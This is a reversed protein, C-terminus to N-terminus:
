KAELEKRLRDVEAELRAVSAHAMELSSPNKWVEKGEADEVIWPEFDGEDRSWAQRYGSCQFCLSGPLEEEAANLAADPDDAEVKVVIDAGAIFIVRYEPM